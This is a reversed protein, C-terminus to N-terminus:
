RRTLPVGELFVVKRSDSSQEEAWAMRDVECLATVSRDMQSQECRPFNLGFILWGRRTFSALDLPTYIADM